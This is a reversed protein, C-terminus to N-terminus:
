AIGRQRGTDGALPRELQVFDTAKEGIGGVMPREFHDQRHSQARSGLVDIDGFVIRQSSGLDFQSPLKIKIASERRVVRDTTGVAMMRIFGVCPVRLEPDADSSLCPITIGGHAVIPDETASLEPITTGCGQLLLSDSRDGVRDFHAIGMFRGNLGDLVDGTISQLELLNEVVADRDLVDALRDGREFANDDGARRRVVVVFRKPVKFTLERIVEFIEIVELGFFRFQILLIHRHFLRSGCM